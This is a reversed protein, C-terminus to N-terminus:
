KFDKPLGSAGLSGPTQINKSAGGPAGIGGQKNKSRDGEFIALLGKDGANEIEVGLRDGTLINNKYTTRSAFQHKGNIVECYIVTDFYKASNRSFNRTGAIPVIKEEKNQQKAMIEHTIVIWNYPSNQISGLGIDLVAGLKAWDEWEPKWEDGKNKGIHALISNGWQTMSDLVVIDKPGLDALRLYNFEKGELTCKQCKHLGHTICPKFEGLGFLNSLAQMACPNAKTDPLSIVDIREQAEQSLQKAVKFGNELDILKINYGAEAMRMALLTKGSKPPGYALIHKPSDTTNIESLRM